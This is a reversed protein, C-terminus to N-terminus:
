LEPLAAIGDGTPQQDVFVAVAGVPRDWPDPLAILRVACHQVSGDRHQVPVRVAGHDFEVDESNM